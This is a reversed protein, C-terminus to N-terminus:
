MSIDCNCCPIRIKKEYQKLYIFESAAVRSMTITVNKTPYSVLLKTRVREYLKFASARTTYASSNGPHKVV